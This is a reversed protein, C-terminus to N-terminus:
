PAGTRLNGVDSRDEAGLRFEAGRAGPRPKGHQAGTRPRRGLHAYRARSEAVVADRNSPEILIGSGADLYDAPGGWRLAIVPANTAMAELVVAGGCEYISPLVLAAAAQLRQACEDQSLWGSFFVRGSVGLREAHLRWPERMSGEGIIELEADPVQALAEIAMDVGKWDVLRGIFLFRPSRPAETAPQSGIQKWRTLDVGNEPLEIVRGRVCSPLALRTRENAVLLTSAHKKGSLVRNVLNSLPRGIAVAIRSARSETRRFAPPYEMGGNMPGIVVPVGLRSMLSPFRPSVPIPQHVLEISECQILERVIRRALFQTILQSLMGVSTEALRRPLLHSLRFLLRHFWADDIFRLRDRDDPFLSELEPRTRSHVVLWADVGRARLRTFYHLPLVAEGGFRASAHEAVICIRM